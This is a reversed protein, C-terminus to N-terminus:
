DVCPPVGAHSLLGDVRGTVDDGIQRFLMFRDLGQEDFGQVRAVGVVLLVGEGPEAGQERDVLGGLLHHHMRAHSPLDIATLLDGIRPQGFFVIRLDRQSLQLLDREPCGVEGLGQDMELGCHQLMGLVLLGLFEGQEVFLQAIRFQRLQGRRDLSASRIAGVCGCAPTSDAKALKATPGNAENSSRARSASRPLAAQLTGSRVETRVM